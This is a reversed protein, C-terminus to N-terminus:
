RGPRKLRMLVALAFFVAGMLGFSGQLSGFVSVEFVELDVDSPLMESVISNALAFPGVGVLLLLAFVTKM